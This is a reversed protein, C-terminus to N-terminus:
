QLRKKDSNLWYDSHVGDQKDHIRTEESNFDIFDVSLKVKKEDAAYQQIQMVQQVASRINFYEM